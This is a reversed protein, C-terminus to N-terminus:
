APLRKSIAPTLFEIRFNDVFKEREALFWLTRPQQEHADFTARSAYM